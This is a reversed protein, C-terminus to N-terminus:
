TILDPHEYVNGIVESCEPNGWELANTMDGSQYWGNNWGVQYIREVTGSMYRDDDIVESVPKRWKLVDGEYIETGNKDKIGTYPVLVIERGHVKEYKMMSNPILLNGDMDIFRHRDVWEGLTKDWAKFKFKRM